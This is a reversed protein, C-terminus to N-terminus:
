RTTEPLGRTGRGDVIAHLQGLHMLDHVGAFLLWEGCRLRGVLPHELPCPDAERGAVSRAAREVIRQSQAIKRALAARDADAPGAVGPVVKPANAPWQGSAARAAALSLGARADCDHGIAQAVNWGEEGGDMLVEEDHLSDVIAALADALVALQPAVREASGQGARHRVERRVEILRGTDIGRWAAVIDPAGDALDDIWAAADSM